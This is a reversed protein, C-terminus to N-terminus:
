EETGELGHAKLRRDREIQRIISIVIYALLFQGGGPNGLVLLLVAAAFTAWQMLQGPVLGIIEDNAMRVELKATERKIWKKM